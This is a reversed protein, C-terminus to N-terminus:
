KSTEEGPSCFRFRTEGTSQFFINRNARTVRSAIASVCKERPMNFLYESVILCSHIYCFFSFFFVLTSILTKASLTIKYNDRAVISCDTGVNRRKSTQISVRKISLVHITKIGSSCISRCGCYSLLFRALKKGLYERPFNEFKDYGSRNQRTRRM